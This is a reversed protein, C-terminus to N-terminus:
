IKLQEINGPWLRFKNSDTEDFVLAKTSESYKDCSRNASLAKVMNKDYAYWSLSPASRSLDSLSCLSIAIILATPMGHRRQLSAHGMEVM